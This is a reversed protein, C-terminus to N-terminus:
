AGKGRRVYVEPAISAGRREASPGRQPTAHKAVKRSPPPSRDHRANSAAENAATKAQKAARQAAELQAADRRRDDLWKRNKEVVARVDAIAYRSESSPRCRVFRVQDSAEGKLVIRLASTSVDLAVALEALTATPEASTLLGHPDTVTTIPAEIENM